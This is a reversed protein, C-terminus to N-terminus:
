PVYSGCNDGTFGQYCACVGTRYNCTGRNSCDIHCKNGYHGKERYDLDGGTQAIGECDTEDVTRTNPDDGSPCRRSECAPGFFEALQTQGDLLGVAWSSDCVCAHGLQTDWSEMRSENQSAYSVRRTSLPVAELSRSLRDMQMCKGRGSCMPLGGCKMKQCAAGEFGKACKCKGSKRNCIGNNSCEMLRHMHNDDTLVFTDGTPRVSHTALNGLSPGAPCAKSSCDPLFDDAISVARDEVSGYGENCTCTSTCYDCVGNDSCKNLAGCGPGIVSSTGVATANIYFFDSKTSIMLNSDDPPHGCVPVIHNRSKPILVWFLDNFAQYGYATLIIQSGAFNDVYSGEIWQAAWTFNTSSTVDYLTADYGNRPADFASFNGQLVNLPYGGVSNTFGPLHLTITTGATIEYGLRLTANVGTYFQPVANPFYLSSYFVFCRKPYTEILSITGVRGAIRGNNPIITVEWSTNMSCSRRIKNARDIYVTYTTLADVGSSGIVFSMSSSAYNDLYSGEHYSVQFDGTNPIYLSDIDYGDSANYCPGSTMGPTSIFITGGAALDKSFTFTMHMQVPNCAAASDPVFEVTGEVSVTEYFATPRLTYPIGGYFTPQATPAPTPLKTPHSTPFYSLTPNM